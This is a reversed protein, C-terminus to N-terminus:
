PVTDRYIAINLRMVDFTMRHIYFYIPTLSSHGELSHDKPEYSSLYLNQLCITLFIMINILFTCINSWASGCYKAVSMCAARLM